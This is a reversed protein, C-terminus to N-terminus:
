GKRAQRRAERLAAELDRIGRQLEEALPKDDGDSAYLAREFERGLLLTPMRGGGLKEGVAEVYEYTTEAPRRPRGGCRQVLLVFSRYARALAVSELRVFRRYSEFYGWTWRATLAIGVTGAFLLVIRFWGREWLALGATTAGRGNGEVATAGETPDFPVWGYGEFYLEAWAHAEAERVVFWGRDDRENSVPFYGTCLRAPIGQTRAMLVMASGFLDCYGEKREGFLFHDVPDVGQPTKEARLNYTCRREIESQIAQAKVFDSKGSEAVKDALEALRSSVRRVDSYAWLHEPIPLPGNAPQADDKLVLARGQFRSMPPLGNPAHVTGDLWYEWTSRPLIEIPEGPVPLREFVGSQLRIAFDVARFNPSRALAARDSRASDMATPQTGEWEASSWGGSSYTGYASMRLYRARDLRATFVVRESLERPGQGIRFSGAPATAGVATQILRRVRPPPIRVIGAVGQVSEQLIPAGLLSILVVVAASMLAWEPGAMWRWPGLRIEALREFGSEAARRLMARQHARAHLTANCLLFVFFMFTAGSFTSFAGVLAFLSICPIAQFLLRGDTWALWSGLGIMWCLAATIGLERTFGEDPLLSNLEPGLFLTALSVAVYAYGGYRLWEEERAVWNVACSFVAGCGILMVFVNGLDTRSISAGVSHAAAIGAGASLAFDLWTLRTARQVSQVAIM